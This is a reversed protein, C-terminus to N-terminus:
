ITSKFTKKEDYDELIKQTPNSTCIEVIPQLDGELKDKNKMTPHKKIAPIICGCSILHKGIPMM